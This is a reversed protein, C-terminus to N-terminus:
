EAKLEHITNKLKEISLEGELAPNALMFITRDIKESNSEEYSIDERCEILNARTGVDTISLEGSICRNIVDILHETKLIVPQGTYDWSFNRLKIFLLDLSESFNILSDLILIRNNVESYKKTDM